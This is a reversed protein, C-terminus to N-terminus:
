ESADARAQGNLDNLLPMDKVINIDAFTTPLFLASAKIRSDEAISTKHRFRPLVLV